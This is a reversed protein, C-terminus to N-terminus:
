LNKEVARGDRIGSSLSFHEQSDPGHDPGDKKPQHPSIRPVGKPRAEYISCYNESDLFACPSSKLVYDHDEDVRLYKEVFDGPKM